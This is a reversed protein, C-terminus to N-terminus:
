CTTLFSRKLFLSDERDSCNRAEKGAFFSKHPDFFYESLYQRLYLTMEKPDSHKHFCLHKFFCPPRELSSLSKAWKKDYYLTLCVGSFFKKPDLLRNSLKQSLQLIRGRLGVLNNFVCFKSFSVLRGAFFTKPWDKITTDFVVFM